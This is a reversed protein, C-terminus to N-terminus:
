YDIRIAMFNKVPTPLVELVKSDGCELLISNWKTDELEYTSTILEENKNYLDISWDELNLTQLLTKLDM